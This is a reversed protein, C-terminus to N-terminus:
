LASGGEQRGTPTTCSIRFALLPAMQFCQRDRPASFTLSTDILSHAAPTLALHSYALCHSCSILILVSNTHKAKKHKYKEMFPKQQYHM